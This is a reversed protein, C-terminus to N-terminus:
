QAVTNAVKASPVARPSKVAVVRARPYREETTSNKTIMMIGAM